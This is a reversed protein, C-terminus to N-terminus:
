IFISIATLLLMAALLWEVIKKFNNNNLYKRIISGAYAWVSISPINIITSMGVMFFISKIINEKEPFFLSAATICIVWAKPNIFQFMVAEFFNLPKNNKQQATVNLSGLMRYGLYLLYISGIFKMYFLISPFRVLISGLGLCVIILQLGHGTPIGLINPITKRFGFNIGSATLISNNPGPTVYM